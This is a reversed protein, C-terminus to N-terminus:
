LQKIFDYIAHSISATRYNYLQEFKYEDTTLNMSVDFLLSEAPSVPMNVQYLGKDGMLTKSLTEVNPFFGEIMESRYRAVPM